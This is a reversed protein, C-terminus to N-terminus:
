HSLLSLNLDSNNASGMIGSGRSSNQRRMVAWRGVPKAEDMHHHHYYEDENEVLTEDVLRELVNLLTVVGFVEVAVEELSSTTNYCYTGQAFRSQLELPNNTVIALHHRHIRLRQLVSALTDDPHCFTPERLPMEKVLKGDEPGVCTLHKTLLLGCIDHRNHATHVPIRSHGTQAIERLLAHDLVADESVM